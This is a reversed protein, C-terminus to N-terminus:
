WDSTVMNVEKIVKNFFNDKLTKFSVRNKLFFMIMNIGAAGAMAGLIIGPFTFSWLNVIIGAVSGLTFGDITAHSDAESEVSVIFLIGVYLVGSPAIMLLFAACLCIGSATWKGGLVKEEKINTLNLVAVTLIIVISQTFTRIDELSSNFSIDNVICLISFAIILITGILICGEKTLNEKKNLNKLSGM